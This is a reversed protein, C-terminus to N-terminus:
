VINIVGRLLLDVQYRYEPKIFLNLYQELIFTPEKQSFHKIDFCFNTIGKKTLDEIDTPSLATLTSHNCERFVSKSRYEIQGIWEQTNCDKLNPCITCSTAVVIEKKNNPITDIIQDPYMRVRRLKDIYNFNSDYLHYYPSAIFYYEPYKESIYDIVMPNSVLIGNSGNNRLKLLTNIQSDYLDTEKIFINSCDFILSCIPNEGFDQLTRFNAFGQTNLPGGNWFHWPFSGDMSITRCSMNFVEPHNKMLECLRINIDFYNYFDPVTINIM